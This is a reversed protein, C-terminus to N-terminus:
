YIAEVPWDQAPSVYATCLPYGRSMDEFQYGPEIWQCKLEMHRSHLRIKIDDSLAPRVSQTRHSMDLNRNCIKICQQSIFTLWGDFLTRNVRVEAWAMNNAPIRFWRIGSNLDDLKYDDALFRQLPEETDIIRRRSITHTFIKCLSEASQQELPVTSSSNPM